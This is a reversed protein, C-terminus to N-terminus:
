SAPLYIASMNFKLFNTKNSNSFWLFFYEINAHGYCLLTGPLIAIEETDVM